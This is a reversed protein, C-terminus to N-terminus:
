SSGQDCLLFLRHQAVAGGPIPKLFALLCAQPSYGGLKICEFARPGM